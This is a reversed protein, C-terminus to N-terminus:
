HPQQNFLSIGIGLCGRSYRFRWMINYLGTFNPLGINNIVVPNCASQTSLQANSNIQM